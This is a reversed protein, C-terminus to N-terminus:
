RVRGGSHREAYREAANEVVERQRPSVWGQEKWQAHISELLELFSGSGSAGAMADEFLNDLDDPATPRASGRRVPREDPIEEFGEVENVVKIVKDMAEAWTHGHKALILTARKFCQLAEAQAEEDMVSAAARMMLDKLQKFEKTTMAM